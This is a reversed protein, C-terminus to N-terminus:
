NSVKIEREIYPAHYQIIYISEEVLMYIYIYIKFLIHMKHRELIM